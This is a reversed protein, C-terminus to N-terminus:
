IKRSYTVIVFKEREDKSIIEWKNIDFEPFKVEGEAEFKMHSIIMEDAFSIAQKYIEGGGTIFIKEKNLTKCYDIASDLSYFIRINEFNYSLNKNHTIVINERGKLPKGLAEFSKRGMVIPYGLTTNKFHRFDEKVQWPLDGNAKGIVGNEAIAVIIIIKM